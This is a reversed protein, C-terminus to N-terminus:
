MLEFMGGARLVSFGNRADCSPLLDLTIVGYKETKWNKLDRKM